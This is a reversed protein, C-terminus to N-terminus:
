CGKNRLVGLLTRSSSHHVRLIHQKAAPMVTGNAIFATMSALEGGATCCGGVTLSTLAVADATPLSVSAHHPTFPIQMARPAPLCSMCMNFMGAIITQGAAWAMAELSATTQRVAWIVRAEGQSCGPQQSRIDSSTHLHNFSYLLLMCCLLLQGNPAQALRYALLPILVCSVTCLFCCPLYKHVAAPCIGRSLLTHALDAVEGRHLSGEMTSCIGAQLHQEAARFVAARLM